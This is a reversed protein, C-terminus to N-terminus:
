NEEVLLTGDAALLGVGDAQWIGGTAAALFRSLEECWPEVLAPDGSSAKSSITVLERTQIMREMLNAHVPNSECTELWAAWSNLEARIGEEDALFRELWLSGIGKITLRAAYWGDGDHEFEGSVEAGRARLHEIIAGPGTHGAETCFVRFIPEM